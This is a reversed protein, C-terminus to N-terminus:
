VKAFHLASIPNILWMSENSHKCLDVLDLRGAVRCKKLIWKLIIANIGLHVLCDRKWTEQSFNQICKEDGEHTTWIDGM